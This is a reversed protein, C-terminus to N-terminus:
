KTLNYKQQVQSIGTKLTSIAKTGDGSSKSIENIADTFYKQMESNLGEDGTESALYWTSAKNAVSLFPWVKDNSQLKESMSKRPYIEGFSRTQSAATYLKELVDTSSLYELFKWAEEQHNSKNSVGETWYSAWHADTLEGGESVSIGGTTPLQPLPTIGYNLSKNLTQLDFVRWSPAFYFALKGSAFMQTSNPLLGNWVNDTSNAFSAYFKLADELNKDTATSTMKALNVGNQELMLGVIDSWHDVNANALGLAAGAVTINKDKDKQTLKIASERLEWWDNPVPLNAQNLLDKNYFLALGDYMLPVSLWKSNVKLDSKYVDLFDSDLGIENAVDTPVSALFSTFMPIWTNHIRFIDVDDNTGTKGLRGYLRTRYDTRQNRKYNIKINPNKAEFDNIISSMVTSDEWLGWYNLTITESTTSKEKSGLVKWLIGGIVIVGLLCLGIIVWKNKLWSLKSKNNPTEEITPVSELREKPIDLPQEEVPTSQPTDVIVKRPPLPSKIEDLNM